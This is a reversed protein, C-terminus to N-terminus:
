ISTLKWSLIVWDRDDVEAITQRINEAEDDTCNQQVVISPAVRNHGCCSNLTAIGNDWLHKIVNAICADIFVTDGRHLGLEEPPTLVAEEDEGIAWNYSKCNCM